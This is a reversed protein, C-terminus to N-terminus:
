AIQQRQGNLASMAADADEILMNSVAGKQTATRTYFFSVRVRGARAAESFGTRNRFSKENM